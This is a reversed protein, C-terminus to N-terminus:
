PDERAPPKRPPGDGSQNAPRDSRREYLTVCNGSPNFRVWTMYSRMLLLGRGSPRELNEPACPDPVMRPDFGTGDDEVEVLVGAAAVQYRVRVRKTADGKNGHKVANVLAEELALRMGFRDREPYGAAVMASAVAQVVSPM